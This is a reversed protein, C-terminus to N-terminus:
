LIIKQTLKEIRVIYMGKTIGNLEVFGDTLVSSQVKAGVANYIEVTVGNPMNSVYLKNEVVRFSPKETTATSTKEVKDIGNDGFQQASITSINLFISCVIFTFIIKKM